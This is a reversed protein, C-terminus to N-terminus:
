NNEKKVNPHEGKKLSNSPVKVVMGEYAGPIPAKVVKQGEKLGQVVVTKENFFLPNIKQLHLLTDNVVFLKSDEVLLMRAVEFANDISKIPLNAELYMGEKLNNDKLTIYVKLTQTNVDVIPNIRSVIGTWEQTHELNQLIVKKGKQLLNGYQTNINVELEYASTNVFTGMKQGPRILSGTNVLTSSLIGSFPACIHYKSLRAEANKVSYYSSLVKRGTVFYKEKDSIMIPLEKLSKHIDFSSLYDKWKPYVEPFDLQLDPMMATLVSYFNSKQARLNASFEESNVRLMIEGKRFYTGAKFEKAGNLLIGQVETFLDIKDKAKLTGSTTINIPITTNKVEQTQAVKVIRKVSHKREKKSNALKKYGMFGGAILLIGLFISIYQRM